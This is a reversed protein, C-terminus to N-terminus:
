IMDGMGQRIDRAGKELARYPKFEECACNYHYGGGRCIVFPQEPPLLLCKSLEATEHETLHHGCLCYQSEGTWLYRTV